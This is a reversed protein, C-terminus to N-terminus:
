LTALPRYITAVWVGLAATSTRSARHRPHRLHSPLRSTAGRPTFCSAPQTRQVLFHVIFSWEKMTTTRSPYIDVRAIRRFASVFVLKDACASASVYVRSGSRAEDQPLNTFTTPHIHLPSRQINNASSLSLRGDVDSGSAGEAERWSGGGAVAAAGDGAHGGGSDAEEKV